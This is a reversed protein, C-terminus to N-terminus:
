EKVSNRYNVWAQDILRKMTKLEPETMLDCDSETVFFSDSWKTQEISLYPERNASARLLCFSKVKDQILKFSEVEDLFDHGLSEVKRKFVSYFHDYLKFDANNWKRLNELDVENLTFEAKNSRSNLPVYLIDKTDWCLIRKLLVLSEHFHEMIMMLEYDATLEEIYQDVFTENNFQSKPVGLDFSMRNYVFYTQIQVEGPNSLFKSMISGVPIVGALRDRVAKYFGYYSSASTFHSVPERIIGVYVTDNPLISRFANKNYVVHNCLINYNSENNPLPVIRKRSVTEGYGLYNFGFGSSKSPLVINLNNNIAFRLFINMVTTSGAKHVKLFSVDFKKRCKINKDLMPNETKHPSNHHQLEVNISSKGPNDRLVLEDKYLINNGSQNLLKPMRKVPHPEVVINLGSVPSM